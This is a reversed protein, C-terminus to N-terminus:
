GSVHSIEIASLTSKEFSFTIQSFGDADRTGSYTYRYVGAERHADYVALAEPYLALAEDMPMGVFAGRWTRWDPNQTRIELLLGNSTDAAGEQRTGSFLSGDAGTIEFFDEGSNRWFGVSESKLGTKWPFAGSQVGLKAAGNERTLSFEESWPGADAADIASAMGRRSQAQGMLVLMLLAAVVAFGTKRALRGMYEMMHYGMVHYSM